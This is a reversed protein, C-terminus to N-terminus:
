VGGEVCTLLHFSPGLHLMYFLVLAPRGTQAQAATSGTLLLWLGGVLTRSTNRATRRQGTSHHTLLSKGTRLSTFVYKGDQFFGEPTNKAGTRRKIHLM